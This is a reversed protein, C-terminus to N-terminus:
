RTRSKSWVIERFFGCIMGTLLFSPHLSVRTREGALLGWLHGVLVALYQMSQTSGDWLKDVASADLIGCQLLTWMMANNPGQKSGQLLELVCDMVLM